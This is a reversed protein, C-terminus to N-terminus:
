GHDMGCYCGLVIVDRVNHSASGFAINIREM